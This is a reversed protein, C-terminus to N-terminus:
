VGRVSRPRPARFPPIASIESSTQRNSKDDSRVTKASGIRPGIHQDGTPKRIPERAKKPLHAPTKYSLRRPSKSFPSRCWRHFAGQVFKIGIGLPQSNRRAAPRGVVVFQEPERHALGVHCLDARRADFAGRVHTTETEPRMAGVGVAQQAFQALGEGAEGVGRHLGIVIPLQADDPGARLNRRRGDTGGALWRVALFRPPTEPRIARFLAGRRGRRGRPGLTRNPREDGRSERGAAERKGRRAYQSRGASHNPRREAQRALVILGRRDSRPRDGGRITM